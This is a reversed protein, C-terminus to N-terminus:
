IETQYNSFLTVEKEDETFNLSEKEKNQEGLSFELYKLTLSYPSENLNERWELVEVLPLEQVM